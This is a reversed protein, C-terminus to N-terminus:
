KSIIFFIVVVFRLSEVLCHRLLRVDAFFLVCGFWAVLVLSVNELLDASPWWAPPETRRRRNGQGQGRRAQYMAM